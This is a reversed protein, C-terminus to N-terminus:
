QDLANLVHLPLRAYFYDDREDIFRRYATQLLQKDKRAAGLYYQQFPTLKPFDELIRICEEYEGNALAQHAIEAKDETCIGDTIQYHSSIFPVTYNKLGYIAREDQINHAIEIAFYAHQIAQDYSEFLYTQALINHLDIKKRKNDTDALLRYGYKRALIVENRKWHYILLSETLREEFLQQLLPDQLHEIRQKVRETFTGIKGYQHMDFYCYIHLLDKLILFADDESSSKIRNIEKLYHVPADPKLQKKPLTKREYMLQYVIARSRNSINISTRNKEILRSLENFLGNTYLFEMAVRQNEESKCYLSLQRLSELEDPRGKLHQYVVYLPLEAESEFFLKVIHNCAREQGM